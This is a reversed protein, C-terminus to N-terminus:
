EKEKRLLEDIRTTVARMESKTLEGPCGIGLQDRVGCGFLARSVLSYIAKSILCVLLIAGGWCVALYIVKFILYVIFANVAQDGVGNLTELILKLEEM